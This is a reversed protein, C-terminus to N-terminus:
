KVIFEVPQGDVGSVVEGIEWDEAVIDEESIEAHKAAVFASDHGLSVYTLTGPRFAVLRTDTRNKWLQTLIM